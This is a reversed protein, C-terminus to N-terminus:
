FSIGNDDTDPPFDSVPEKLLGARLDADGIPHEAVSLEKAPRGSPIPKGRPANSSKSNPLTVPVPIVPVPIQGAAQQQNRLCAVTIRIMEYSVRGNLEDFLPKLRDLGIQTTAERVREFVAPIVWPSVDLVGEERIYEDLYTSITSRRRQTRDAVEDLSHGERFLQFAIPKPSQMSSVNASDAPDHVGGGWNDLSTDSSHCYESVRELFAEGYDALKKEGIGKIKRMGQLTSPRHRALDRLTEDTFVVYAPVGAEIAIEHRFTRLDDFLDRDVGEWNSEVRAARSKQKSKTDAPQLLRPTTEGRLVKWGSKSLSLTSYEGSRDIFGQSQLQDIWGRISKITQESLIGYTSLKNHGNDFIRQDQSGKLIMATYEGGYTRGSESQRFISSLIKQGVILPEPILDLESLCVDCANCSESEFKQGFYEVLSRHRCKVGSAYDVMAQLSRLSPDRAAGSSEDIMRKWRSYDGMSYLLVCEAELGDRGGRGAEQQYNELAKPMGAHIVYRVNSKDIGMGFAVTAVIIDISESIFAEQNRRRASDDMGAHYPVAKHGLGNLQESLDDVAQRSTCYIIGSERKHRDIVERIQPLRGAMRETRYILNPRDFSGVLIEPDRLGLQVAIDARVQETATATFAHIGIDPLEDRLMQLQRYEPRFDHGWESICHAEDIAIFSVNSSKIFEVTRAQVLREPSIYLLRLREDRVDDAVQKREGASQSSNICAAAVGCTKLSDVQDKMLSILPSVVIAMGPRCLAPVQYCLSKGGGTPLVVLSDRGDMACAMAEAQLPRFTDYGWYKKLVEQLM